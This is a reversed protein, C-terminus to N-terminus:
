KANGPRAAGSIQRLVGGRGWAADERPPEELVAGITAGVLLRGAAPQARPARRERRYGQRDHVDTTKLVHAQREGPRRLREVSRALEVALDEPEHLGSTGRREGPDPDPVRDGVLLEVQEAFGGADRRIRVRSTVGTELHVIDVAESRTELRGPDRSAVVVALDRPPVPEERDVREAVRDLEDPEVRVVPLALVRAPSVGSRGV